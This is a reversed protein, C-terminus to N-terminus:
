RIKIRKKLDDSIGLNMFGKPNETHIPVIAEKPNITTIVEAITEPDAHGSTHLHEIDFEWKEAQRVVAILEPKAYEENEDLYGDWMSYILVPKPNCDKFKEMIERYYESSGIMMVFGEKLMYEYQTMNFLPDTKRRLKKDLSIIYSRHFQFRWDREDEGVLETFLQLQKKVYSNCYLAKKKDTSQYAAWYFSAISELNTSSCILFSYPHNRLIDTATKQMEEESLVKQNQRSMMTGETFLVDVPKDTLHKKIDETLNKGLRGHSRYDGTHVYTKGDAEFRLMYADFASHDVRLAKFRIDKYYDEERNKYFRVNKGSLLTKERELIKREEDSLSEINLLTDRINEMLLQGVRGIFIDVGDPIHSLLGIHDGHIHTFFVADPRTDAAQMMAIMQDDSSQEEDVSLEMGFDVWIKTDADTTIQVIAGGIQDAGRLIQFGMNENRGICKPYKSLVVLHHSFIEVM